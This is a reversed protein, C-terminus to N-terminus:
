TKSGKQRTVRRVYQDCASDAYRRSQEASMIRYGSFLRSEPVEKNREALYYLTSTALTALVLWLGHTEFLALSPGRSLRRWDLFLLCGCLYAGYFVWVERFYLLADAARPRFKRFRWCRRMILQRVPRGLFPIFFLLEPWFHSWGLRVGSASAGEVRLLSLAWWQAFWLPAVIGLLEGFQRLGSLITDPMPETRLSPDRHDAEGCEKLRELIREYALKSRNM